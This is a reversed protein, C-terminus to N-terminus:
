DNYVTYSAIFKELQHIQSRSLKDFEVGLRRVNEALMDKSVVNFIAGKLYFRRGVLFIDLKNAHTLREQNHVYRFSLGKHSIDIIKGLTPPHSKLVAIAQNMVRYRQEARRDPQRFEKSM